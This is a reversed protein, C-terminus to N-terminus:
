LKWLLSGIATRLLVSSPVFSSPASHFKTVCVVRSRLQVLRQGVFGYAQHLLTTISFLVNVAIQLCLQSTSFSPRPIHYITYEGDPSVTRQSIKLLLQTKTELEMCGQNTCVLTMPVVNVVTTGVSHELTLRTGGCLREDTVNSRCQVRVYESISQLRASWRPPSACWSCAHTNWTVM